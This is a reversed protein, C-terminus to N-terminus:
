PGAPAAELPLVEALRRLRVDDRAALGARLRYKRRADFAVVVRRGSGREAELAEGIRELIADNERAWGGEGLDRGFRAELTEQASATLEDFRASHVGRLDGALGEAELRRRAEERAREVARTDAPRTARWQELLAARRAEVAPTWVACPVLEIRGELALPYLVRTVEPFGRVHEDSVEGTSVYQAWAAAHREPPVEVLVRSARLSRLTRELTELSYGPADLHGQGLTGVVIVEPPIPERPLGALSRCAALLPLALLALLPARLM